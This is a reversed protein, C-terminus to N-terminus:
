SAPPTFLRLYRALSQRADFASRVHDQGRAGVQAAAIPDAAVEALARALDAEDQPRTLWGRGNLLAPVGGVEPCVCPLGIAMAEIM